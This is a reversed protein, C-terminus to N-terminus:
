GTAGKQGVSLLAARLDRELLGFRTSLIYVVAERAVVEDAEEAADSGGGTFTVGSLQRMAVRLKALTTGGTAEAAYEEAEHNYSVAEIFTLRAAPTTADWARRLEAIQAQFEQRGKELDEPEVMPTPETPMEASPTSRRREARAERKQQAQKARHQEIALEPNESEVFQILRRVQREGVNPLHCLREETWFRKWCWSWPQGEDTSRDTIRQKIEAAYQGFAILHDVGRKASVRMKGLVVDLPETTTTTTTTTTTM